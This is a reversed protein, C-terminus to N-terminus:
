EEEDQPLELKDARLITAEVVKEKIIKANIQLQVPVKSWEADMILKRDSLSAMVQQVSAPFEEGSHVNEVYVRFGDPVQTDVKQVRYLGDKRQEKAASRTERSIRQGAEAPISVGNIAADSQSAHKVISARAKEAEERLGSVVPVQKQAQELVEMKQKDAAVTQIAEMAKTVTKFAEKNTGESLEALKVEKRDNLWTRLVAQGGWTLILVVLVVAIHTPEMKDVAGVAAEKLIDTLNAQQDSSGSKVKVVLELSDKELDSLVRGDATGKAVLAYTRYVSKQADQWGQMMYTNLASDYRQEPILVTAKVWDGLVLDEMTDIKISGDLLGGLVEWAQEESNIEVQM